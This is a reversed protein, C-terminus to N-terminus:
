LEKTVKCRHHQIARWADAPEEFIATRASCGSCRGKYGGNALVIFMQQRESRWRSLCAQYHDWAKQVDDESM